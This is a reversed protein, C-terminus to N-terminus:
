QAPASRKGEIHGWSEIGAQKLVFRVDSSEEFRIKVRYADGAVADRTMAYLPTVWDFVAAAALIHDLTDKDQKM